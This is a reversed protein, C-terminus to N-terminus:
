VARGAWPQSCDLRFSSRHTVFVVHVVLVVLGTARLLLLVLAYLLLRVLLLLLAFAAVLLTAFLALLIALVLGALLVLPSILVALPDGSVFAAGAGDPALAACGDSVPGSPPLVM